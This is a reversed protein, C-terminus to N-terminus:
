VHGGPSILSVGLLVPACAFGVGGEELFPKWAEWEEDGGAEVRRAGLFCSRSNPGKAQSVATQRLAATPM